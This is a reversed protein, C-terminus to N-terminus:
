PSCVHCAMQVWPHSLSLWYVLYVDVKTVTCSMIGSALQGGFPDDTNFESQLLKRELKPPFYMGCAVAVDNAYDQLQEIAKQVHEHLGFM